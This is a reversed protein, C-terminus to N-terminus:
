GAVANEVTARVDLVIDAGTLNLVRALATAPRAVRLVARRNFSLLVNLVTSDAFTLGGADVVVKAHARAGSELAESLAPVSNLDFAGFLAM